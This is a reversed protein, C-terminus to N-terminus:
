DKKERRDKWYAPPLGSREADSPEPPPKIPRKLTGIPRFGGRTERVLHRGRPM